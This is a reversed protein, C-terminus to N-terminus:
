AARLRSGRKGRPASRGVSIVQEIPEATARVTIDFACEVVRGRCYRLEYAVSTVASDALLIQELRAMRLEFAQGDEGQVPILTPRLGILHREGNISTYRKQGHQFDDAFHDLM